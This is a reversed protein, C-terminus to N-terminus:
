QLFSATSTSAPSEAPVRWFPGAIQELPQGPDNPRLGYRLIAIMDASVKPNSVFYRHGFFDTTGSVEIIEVADLGGILAIQDPTFSTADIRGLRAISGFLWGAAALAKDQRSVYLTLRLGPSPPIIADADSERGFPLDPDSFVKFIKMVAVDGDLDPAVLVVNGIHFERTPSSKRAYTEASLAALASALTDTGRSHAVFHIRDLGPTGAIIRITKVLDEVAYEASERDVDYGFLIGGHGGAPWTFIGCVFERGLFHCMEGMTLAAGEFSAHYGHVFLVVEKRPASALRSAVEAQLQQKAHEHAEVVAPARRKGDRTNVLEYPIAPFRGLETTAGLSLRVPSAHATAAGHAALKDLTLGEGFQVMASGFAISRSRGATYPPDGPDQAPARDTVFLLDLTPPLTPLPTEVFLPKANPGAYIAPIPMLARDTACAALLCALVGVAIRGAWALPAFSSACARCFGILRRQYGCGLQLAIQVLSMTDDRLLKIAGRLRSRIIYRTIGISGKFRRGFALADTGLRSGIDDWKLKADLHEDVYRIAHELANPPLRPAHVRDDDRRDVALREVCARIVGNLEETRRNSAEASEEACNELYARMMHLAHEVKM